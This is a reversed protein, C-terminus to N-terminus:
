VPHFISVAERVASGNTHYRMLQEPGDGAPAQFFDVALKNMLSRPATSQDMVPRIALWEDRYVGPVQMTLEIAFRQEHCLHMSVDNGYSRHNSCMKSVSQFRNRVFYDLRQRRGVDERRGRPTSETNGLGVV